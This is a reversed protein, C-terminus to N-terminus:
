TDIRYRGDDEQYNAEVMEVHCGDEVGGGDAFGLAGTSMDSSERTRGLGVIHDVTRMDIM